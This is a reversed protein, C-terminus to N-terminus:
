SREDVTESPLQYEAASSHRSTPARRLLATAESPRHLQHQGSDDVPRAPDRRRDDPGEDDRGQDPVARDRRHHRRLGGARRGHGTESTSLSKFFKIFGLTGPAERKRGTGGDARVAERRLGHPQVQRLRGGHDDADFSDSETKFQKGFTEFDALTATDWDIKSVTPEIKKLFKGLLEICKPPMDCFDNVTITDDSGQRSRRTRDVDRADGSHNRSRRLTM